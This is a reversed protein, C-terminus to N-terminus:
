ALPRRLPTEHFRFDRFQETDSVRDHKGAHAPDADRAHDSRDGVRPPKADECRPGQVGVLGTRRDALDPLEGVLGEAGVGRKEEGPRGAVRLDEQFFLNGDDIEGESLAVPQDLRGVLIAPLHDGGDDIVTVCLPGLLVTGVRQEDRPMFRGGVAAVHRAENEDGANDVRYFDGDDRCAAKGVAPAKRSRQGQAGLPDGHPGAEHRRLLAGQVFEELLEGDFLIDGVGEIGVPEVAQVAPDEVGRRCALGDALSEIKGRRKEGRLIDGPLQPEGVGLEKGAHHGRSPLIGLLQGEHGVGELGDADGRFVAVVFLADEGHALHRAKHSVDGRHGLQHLPHDASADAARSRRLVAMAPDYVPSCYRLPTMGASAPIWM